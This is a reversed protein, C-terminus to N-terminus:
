NKNYGKDKCFVSCIGVHTTLKWGAPQVFFLSETFIFCTDGYNQNPQEEVNKHKVFWMSDRYWM